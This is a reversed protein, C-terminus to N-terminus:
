RASSSLDTVAGWYDLDPDLPLIALSSTTV